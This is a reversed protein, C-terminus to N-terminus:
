LDLLPSGNFAPMWFYDADGYEKQFHTILKEAMSTGTGHTVCNKNFPRASQNTEDEYHMLTLRPGGGPAGTAIYRLKVWDRVKSRPRYVFMFVYFDGEIMKCTEFTFGHELLLGQASVIHPAFSSDYVHFVAGAARKLGIAKLEAELQDGSLYKLKTAM